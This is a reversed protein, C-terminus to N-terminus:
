HVARTTPHAGAALIAELTLYGACAGEPHPDVAAYLEAAEDAALRGSAIAQRLAGGAIWLARQRLYEERAELRRLRM